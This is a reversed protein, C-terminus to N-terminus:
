IKTGGDSIDGGWGETIDEGGGICSTGGDGIFTTGGDGFCGGCGCECIETEDIIGRM